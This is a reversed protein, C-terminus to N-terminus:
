TSRTITARYKAAALGSPGAGIIAVSEAKLRRESSISGMARERLATAVRATHVIPTIRKSSLSLLM